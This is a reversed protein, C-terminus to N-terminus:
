LTPLQNLTGASEARKQSATSQRRAIDECLQFLALEPTERKILVAKNSSGM